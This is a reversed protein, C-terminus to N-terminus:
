AILPMVGHGEAEHWARRASLTRFILEGFEPWRAVMDRLDPRQFVLVDTTEAAVCASITPEGTFIAIDGIFTGADAEAVYIDKGPKHEVLEVRGRLIVYFPADRQAHEYLVEGPQFTQPVGRKGLWRLKNESLRPYLVQDDLDPYEARVTTTVAM